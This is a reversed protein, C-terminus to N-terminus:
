TTANEAARRNEKLWAEIETVDFRLRGDVVVAPLDGRRAMLVVRTRSIKLVEALESATLLEM